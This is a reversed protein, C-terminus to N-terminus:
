ISDKLVQATLYEIPSYNDTLNLQLDLNFKKEDILKQPLDAM